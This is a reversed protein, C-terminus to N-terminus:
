LNTKNDIAAMLSNCHSGRNQSVEARRNPVFGSYSEPCTHCKSSAISAALGNARNTGTHECSGYTKVTSSPKSSLVTNM